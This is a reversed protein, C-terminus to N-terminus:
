DEPVSKKRPTIYDRGPTAAISSGDEPHWLLLVTTGFKKAPTLKEARKRSTREM